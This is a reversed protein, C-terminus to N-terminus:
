GWPLMRQLERDHDIFQHKLAGLIHLALVAMLVYAFWAHVAGLMDHWWDQTAPALGQLFGFRPWEFLGFLFMPHSPAAAWASDHAWGSLPLAFMLGYLVWHAAHAARTEWPKYSLPWPPPPNALRWMLRLIALGLVTIGISKHTDVIPRVSDDPVFDSSWILPINAIMLVAVLWHLLMAMRTYSSAPEAASQTMRM